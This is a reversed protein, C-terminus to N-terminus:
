KIQRMSFLQNVNVSDLVVYADLSELVDRQATSYQKLYRVYVYLNAGVEIPKPTLGVEELRVLIYEAEITSEYEGVYLLARGEESQEILNEKNEWVVNNDVEDLGPLCYAQIYPEGMLDTNYVCLRKASILKFHTNKSYNVRVVGDDSLTEVSKCGDGLCRVSLIPEGFMDNLLFIQSMLPTIKSNLQYYYGPMVFQHYKGEEIDVNDFDADLEFAMDTYTTLKILKAGDLPAKDRYWYKGDKLVNYTMAISTVETETETETFIPEIEVFARGKEYTMVGGQLSVVQTGSLNGSLSRQRDSNLYTYASYGVAKRHGSVNASFEVDSEQGRKISMTSSAYGYEGSNQYTASNQNYALGKQDFYFGTRASLHNDLSFSWALTTNWSNKIDGYMSYTTNISFKGGFVERSWSFSVNDSQSDRTQYNFYNIYGTGNLVQGSLGVSWDRSSIDGYLLKTLVSVNEDSDVYRYSSSLSRISLQGYHSQSGSVFMGLNYQASLSDDYAWYGGTQLLTDDVNSTVGSALLWTESPRYAFSVRGYGYENSEIQKVSSDLMMVDNLIGADLRYDWRTVPLAFQVTNVVQRQERLIELEGQKLVLSLNYVGSPLEDYGISQQGQSVVKNLLLREGQYVELQASQPAFFYIRKQAQKQGKLLNESNGFSLGLGSYNVGYNLFDTSNFTVAQQGQYGAIVRHEDIEIDYLAQYLELENENQQYQTEISLFGVPLGLTSHNSWNFNNNGDGDIYFYLDSWNILANSLRASSYYEVDGSQRNLMDSEVFVTLKQEDFDFLFEAAGSQDKPICLSLRGECGPNAEIGTILQATIKKIASETLRQSKLYNTFININDINNPLRFTDYSVLGNISQSRFEGAIVIEVVDLREEFFDYFEIPYDSSFGVSPFFFGVCTLALASRKM